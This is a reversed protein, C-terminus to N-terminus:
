ALAVRANRFLRLWPADEKWSSDSVANQTARFVREPHPMMILVRGEAATVGALGGPSGNPNAPYTMTPQHFSDVYTFATQPAGDGALEAYGEGHAVAVPLVSGAMDTLWPSTVDSIRILSTRGEYQQSQNTVFRPWNQAGPVLSKLQAFMQAGNCVGLALSDRAFFREFARRLDEDFLISKAWGGGGGLVDGYSFGGCAALASFRELLAPNALLDSMHVDVPQFGAREFAAAMELQGNVGQERVVAVEPRALAVLPATIDEDVNFSVKAAMGPDDSEIGAYEMDACLPNDRLRQMLYSTKAWLKHLQARNSSLVLQGDVQVQIAGDFRPVGVVQARVSGNAFAACVKAADARRVQVLAGLEENFLQRRAHDIPEADQADGGRTFPLSQLDLEVGCRGAFAMELACVILGGDSRDHYALLHGADNQAIVTNFFAKLVEPDDVDPMEQGLQGYVQALASGGLRGAGLDVLVLVTDEDDRRLQPTLTQRIDAVPAFATINLTLPSTVSRTLGDVPWATRMSLSDKGVPIAIGLAPCLEMGVAKVADFLAQDQKDADAAAMWNASLVVRSLESVRAAALNTLAEGVAMRASAAPNALALAPREGMCMAEGTYGNFGSATVAVDAVPEQWPGVLQEQAVLGTVSRDGITILFKKSGVSPFRLVRELDEMLDVVTDTRSLALQQQGFEVRAFSRHQQPTNGFLLDMPLDVPTEPHLDDTLQLHPEAIANGVIACPCRERACIAEFVDIRAANVAMVYREQSENCWIEMPAMSPDASPIQRLEFNAGTGADKALEPLANSLGGAGVDHILEIPNDEGLACCADIVEQARRQMEANGRQVSAFDLDSSSQGSTMSSAAGGGLGILMGPGGLVVLRAGPAVPAAQVHESRVSGLGGAIMVPKHYGSHHEGSNADAMEFTRFYGSLAPRGFENNFSAAGIPGELMIELASAIQEPKGIATEWPQADGPINLHSTTFGALGAKPKSGRGVAGEDRIEGGSGTAAGAFPAIATPHNHTEVKMLVNADENVFEFRRSQPNVQLRDQQPGEIVAANDSYASLVGRGNIQKHTNRIMQFLSLDAETDDVTWSANFVKHRCHESNAQAFMMLEVDTPERGLAAFSRVLYDIEGDSLALGLEINAAPLDDLAIRSLQRVPGATFVSDFQQEACPAETMRDFLLSHVDARNIAEQDGELYWRVGREVRLVSTLGCIAFIDSAKSSWPSITGPRPLVTVVVSGLQQPLDQTPGYDLLALARRHEEPELPRECDLLHVYEAYCASIRSDKAKLLQLTKNLSFASRAARGPLLCLERSM